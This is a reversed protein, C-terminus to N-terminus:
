PQRQIPQRLLVHPALPLLRQKHGLLQLDDGRELDCVLGALVEELDLLLVLEELQLAEGCFLELRVQGNDAVDLHLPQLLLVIALEAGGDSSATLVNSGRLVEVCDALVGTKEGRLAVALALAMTMALIRLWDSSGDLQPGDSLFLHAVLPIIPPPQLGLPRLLRGYQGILVTDGEKVVILSIDVM